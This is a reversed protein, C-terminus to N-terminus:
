LFDSPPNARGGTRVPVHSSTHHGHTSLGGRAARANCCPRARYVWTTPPVKLTAVTDFLITVDRIGTRSRGEAVPLYGPVDMRPM